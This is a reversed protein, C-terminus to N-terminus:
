EKVEATKEADAAAAPQAAAMDVDDKPVYSLFKAKWERSDDIVEELLAKLVEETLSRRLLNLSRVAKSMGRSDGAVVAQHIVKLNAGVHEILQTRPDKPEEKKKEDKKEKKDEETKEADKMEVNKKDEMEPM